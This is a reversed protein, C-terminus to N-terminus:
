LFRDAQRGWEGRGDSLRQWGRISSAPTCSPASRGASDFDRPRAADAYGLETLHHLSWILYDHEWPATIMWCPNAANGIRADEVTRAGWFGLKNYEPPGYMGATM